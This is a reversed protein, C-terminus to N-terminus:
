IVEEIENIYLLKKQGICMESCRKRQCSHGFSSSKRSKLFIGLGSDKSSDGPSIMDGCSLAVTCVRTADTDSISGLLYKSPLSVFSFM